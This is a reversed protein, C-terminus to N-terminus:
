FDKVSKEYLHITEPELNLNQAVVLDDLGKQKLEIIKLITDELHSM